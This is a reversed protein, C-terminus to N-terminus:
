KLSAEEDAARKEEATMEVPMADKLTIPPLKHKSVYDDIIKQEKGRLYEVVSLVIKKSEGDFEIVTMPLKDGVQFA